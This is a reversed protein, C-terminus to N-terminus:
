MKKLVAKEDCNEKKPCKECDHWIKEPFLNKSVLKFGLRQFFAERYTLAFIRSNKPIDYTNLLYEVLKSGIQKGTFAPNVALSRVEFLNKGFDKLSACAVVEGDLLSVAFSNIRSLISQKSLPLLLGKDSYKDLLSCIMEADPESAKRIIIEDCLNNM